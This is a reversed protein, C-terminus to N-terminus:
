QQRWLLAGDIEISAISKHQGDFHSAGLGSSIKCAVSSRKNGAAIKIGNVM